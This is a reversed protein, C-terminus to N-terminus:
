MVHIDELVMCLENNIAELRFSATLDSWQGNLPLDYYVYGVCSEIEAVRDIRKYGPRGTANEPSTVKFVKGSPHPEPLGYGNIVLELLEPSWKYYPDHKIYEFAKEYNETALCNVWSTVLNIIQQDTADIKM